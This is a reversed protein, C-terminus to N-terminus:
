YNGNSPFYPDEGKDDIKETEEKEEEKWVEWHLLHLFVVDYRDGLESAFDDAGSSRLWDGVGDDGLDPVNDFVKYVPQWANESTGLAYEARIKMRKEKKQSPNRALKM